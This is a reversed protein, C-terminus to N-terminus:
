VTVAVIELLDDWKMNSYKLNQSFVEESFLLFYIQNRGFFLIQKFYLFFIFCKIIDFSVCIRFFFIRVIGITWDGM